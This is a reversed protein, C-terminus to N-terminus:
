ESTLCHTGHVYDFIQNFVSDFCNNQSFKSGIKVRYKRYIRFIRFLVHKSYETYVSYFSQGRKSAYFM